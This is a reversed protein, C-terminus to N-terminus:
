SAVSVLRLQYDVHFRYGSQMVIERISKAAASSTIRHDSQTDKQEGRQEAHRASARIARSRPRLTGCSSRNRVSSHDSVRNMGSSAAPAWGSLAVTTHGSLPFNSGGGCSRKARHQWDSNDAKPYEFTCNIPAVRGTAFDHVSGELADHKM